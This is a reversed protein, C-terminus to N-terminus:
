FHALLTPGTHLREGFPARESFVSLSFSIVSLVRGHEGHGFSGLTQKLGWLLMSREKHVVKGGGAGRWRKQKRLTVRYVRRALYPSWIQKYLGQLATWKRRTSSLRQPLFEAGPLQRKSWHVRTSIGWTQFISHSIHNSTSSNFSVLAIHLEFAYFYTLWIIDPTNSILIRLIPDIHHCHTQSGEIFM